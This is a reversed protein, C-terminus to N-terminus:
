GRDMLADLECLAGQAGLKEFASRAAHLELDASTEDGIRRYVKALLVRTMAAEYPLDVEMWLKLARHLSTCAKEFDRNALNLSGRAHASAAGLAASEFRSAISELEEVSARAGEFDATALAIQIQSPLMRARDLPLLSRRLARKILKAADDAKGQTLLLLPLGPVPDRGREHAERFAEEAGDYDGLRLRIEGIEYFAQAAIDVYGRPDACVRQVEQEAERLAGRLRM